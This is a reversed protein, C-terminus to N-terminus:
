TSAKYGGIISGSAVALDDKEDSGVTLLWGFSRVFSRVFLAPSLTRSWSERGADSDHFEIAVEQCTGVAAATHQTTIHAWSPPRPSRSSSFLDQHILM